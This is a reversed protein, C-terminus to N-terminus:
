DIFVKKFIQMVKDPLFDRYCNMDEKYNKPDFERLIHFFEMENTFYIGKDGLIKIHSDNWIQNDNHITKKYAIVPKNNISFEAISLGFSHGMTGCELHADCTQIFRNKEVETIVKDIYKINNHKIVQPTNGFLFYINPCYKVIMDIARWCFPINFTDEGGYRGFVISDEPINLEKRLNRGDSSPQLSIMHPVFTNSRYKDALAESVGAYVDGHPQSMDFVCHIVTKINKPLEDRHGYKISYYIDCKEDILIKELHDMDRYWYVKFRDTFKKIADRDNAPHNSIPVVIISENKLIKENHNAYDYLAVCSGRIGIHDHQFAIKVM